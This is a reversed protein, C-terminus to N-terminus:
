SILIKSFGAETLFNSTNSDHTFNSKQIKYM